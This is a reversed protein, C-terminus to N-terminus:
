DESLNDAERVRNSTAIRKSAKHILLITLILVAIAKVYSVHEGNLGFIGPIMILTVALLLSIIHTGDKKSSRDNIFYWAPIIMYLLVYSPAVGVSLIQVCVLLSVTEWYPARKDALVVFVGVTMLILSIWLGFAGVSFNRMGFGHAATELIGALGVHGVMSIAESYKTANRFVDLVTGDTFFFPVIFIVACILICLALDKYSKNRIADRLVLIGFFAPYIKTAIAIGLFLFSFYKHEKKESNFFIFFILSFIVSILM